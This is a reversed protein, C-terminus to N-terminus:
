VGLGYFKSKAGALWPREASANAPPLQKARSLDGPVVPNFPEPNLPKPHLSFIRCSGLYRIGQSTYNHYVLTMRSKKTDATHPKCGTKLIAYLAKSKIKGRSHLILHLLFQFIAHFSSNLSKPDLTLIPSIQFNLIIVVLNHIRM